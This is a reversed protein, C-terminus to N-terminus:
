KGASKLMDYANQKADKLNKCPKVQNANTWAGIEDKFWITGDETLKFDYVKGNYKVNFFEEM